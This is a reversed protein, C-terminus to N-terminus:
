GAAVESTCNPCRTAKIAISSLCYPCDKETPEAEPAEEEAQMNNIGRILLFVAFAVILFSIM